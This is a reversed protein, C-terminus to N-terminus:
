ASFRRGKGEGTQRGAPGAEPIRRGPLCKAKVANVFAQQALKDQSRFKQRIDGYRPRESFERKRNATFQGGTVGKHGHGLM